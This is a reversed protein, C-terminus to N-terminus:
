TCWTPGSAASGATWGSACCMWSRRACSPSTGTSTRSSPCSTTCTTSAPGNTSRGPRSTPSTVSGTTRRGGTRHRTAGSTGTGTRTRRPRRAAVFWPHQDSTHNPVFDLWVQLGRAEADAILADLDALTGFVPDVDCHDAVDYGFDAMPSRYLPSSWIADVGLWTLHDLGARIGALDGVGDGDGDRFSRPYVQYIVGEFPLREARDATTRGTGDGMTRETGAATM